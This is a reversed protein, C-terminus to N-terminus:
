LLCHFFLKGSDMDVVTVQLVSEGVALDSRREVNYYSPSFMPEHNNIETVEIFVTATHSLPPEGQDTALVTFTM